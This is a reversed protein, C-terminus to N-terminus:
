RYTGKSKKVDVNDVGNIFLLEDVDQKTLTSNPGITISKILDMTIPIDVVM